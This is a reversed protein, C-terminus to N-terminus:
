IYYKRKRGVCNKWKGEMYEHCEWFREKEMLDLITSVDDKCLCPRIDRTDIRYVEHISESIEMGEPVDYLDIEMGYSTKRIIKKMHPLPDHDGKVGIVIRKNKM